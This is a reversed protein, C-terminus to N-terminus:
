TRPSIIEFLARDMLRRWQYLYFDMLWTRSTPLHEDLIADAKRKALPFQKGWGAFDGGLLELSLLTTAVLVFGQHSRKASRAVSAKRFVPALDRHTMIFERIEGHWLLDALKSYGHVGHHAEIFQRSKETLRKPLFCFDVSHRFDDHDTDGEVQDPLSM